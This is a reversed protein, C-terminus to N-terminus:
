VVEVKDVASFEIGCTYLRKNKKRGMQKILTDGPVESLCDTGDDFYLKCKTM